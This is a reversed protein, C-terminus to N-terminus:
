LSFGARATSLEDLYQGIQMVYAGQSHHVAARQQSSGGLDMRDAEVDVSFGNRVDHRCGRGGGHQLGGTVHWAPHPYSMCAADQPEVLLRIALELGRRDSVEIDGNEAERFLIAATHPDGIPEIAHGQDAGIPTPFGSVVAHVLSQWRALDSDECAGMLDPKRGCHSQAGIVRRTVAEHYRSSQRGAKVLITEEAHVFIGFACKPHTAARDHIIDEPFGVVAPPWVASQEICYVHM